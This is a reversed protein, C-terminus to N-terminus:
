LHYSATYFWSRRHGSSCPVCFFSSHAKPNKKMTLNHKQSKPTYRFTINTSNTEWNNALATLKIRMPSNSYCTEGVWPCLLLMIYQSLHLSLTAAPWFCPLASEITPKGFMANLSVRVSPLWRVWSISNFLNTVKLSLFQSPCLTPTYLTLIDCTNIDNTNIFDLKFFCFKCTM